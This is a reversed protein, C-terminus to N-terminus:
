FSELIKFIEQRSKGPENFYKLAADKKGLGYLNVAILKQTDSHELDEAQLNTDIYELSEQYKGQKTLITAYLLKEKFKFTSAPLKVLFGDYWYQAEEYKGQAFLVRPYNLAAPSSFTPLELAKKILQESLQFEKQQYAISAAIVYLNPEQNSIGLGKDVMEKAKIYKGHEFYYQALTSYGKVSKPSDKIMSEFLAFANRWVLNRPITISTYFVALALFLVMATKRYRHYIESFVWGAIIAMGLSPLYMWREAMIDGGRFFFQSVPIYLFLFTVAGIGLAKGRTKKWVSLFILVLLFSLGTMARPSYFLNGVLTVAKFHYSATLSVPVFIKYIYLFAIKLATLEGTWFPAVVLVNSLPGIDDDGFVRGPIALHRMWLYVAFFAGFFLVGWLLDYFRQKNPKIGKQVWYVLFFLMPAMIAFEKSFLGLFFLVASLFLWKLKLREFTTAKLFVLWSLLVFTAALLEDRSKILAIAETHIPLLAFFLAAFVALSKKNFLQFTLLFVLFVVIANLVINVVHFWFPNEADAILNLSFTFMTLPRYLNAAPSDPLVAEIWLKSLHKPDKLETQTTFFADDWVFEGKLTNGYLFFSLGLSLIFASLILRRNM